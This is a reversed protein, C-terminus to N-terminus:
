EGIRASLEEIDDVQDRVFTEMEDGFRAFPAMANQERIEQYQESAELEEFADAWYQYRADSIGAPVYFGRWNAGIVDIGQEQATPVDALPEDLREEALVALVKLNGSEVQPLAESADGTFVDARGGVIEIIAQGGSSFSVYQIQEVDEVGAAQAALLVKLHDWGGVASGGVVTLAAPDESWADMLDNISDHPSDPAVGIVGYDAGVAAVWRVDDATFGEFQGQALRTTTATSAAVLLNENGEQQAVVHAYAVGGGAGAMNQAQIQGDVLGLDTLVPAISRCTMDWGGGPDSPAICQVGSPTEQAFAATLGFAAVAFVSLLLRKM